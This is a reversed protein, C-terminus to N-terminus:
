DDGPVAIQGRRIKDNLEAQSKVGRAALLKGDPNWQRSTMGGAPNPRVVIVQTPTVAAPAPSEGPVSPAAPDPPETQQESMRARGTATKYRCAEAIETQLLETYAELKDIEHLVVTATWADTKKNVLSPEQIKRGTANEFAASLARSQLLLQEHYVM